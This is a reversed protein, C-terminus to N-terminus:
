LDDIITVCFNGEKIILLWKLVEIDILGMCIYGSSVKQWACYQQNYLCYHVIPLCWTTYFYHWATVVSSM